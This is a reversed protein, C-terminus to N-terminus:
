YLEKYIKYVRDKDLEVFNNAMLRGQNVMVSETFDALDQETVGYERLPKKQILVNLLKELEDYVNEVGCGIMEAIFANLKAIEGDTKLEMYNKMVGTFMAYNAEGHAVHYMAGLPYSLAHVAACGANGFAIGAYNSAVLFDELLEMRAEEGHDRIQVYGKLIMEIAKYGFMRTYGNGKPSLSSEIAHILADISSTAFFRFPLGNLLEPILVAADAYMEDVALGKKTGRSNLALIAINTVESGTGCTTPVLILEKDKEMPLKGDYLDLIPSVYKLAFLKSIDIVTGGGIAIIRKPTGKIDKYIAEAMDDSPEGSGYKEQFIVDCALNMGGFAPGYIYENTIVLDGEGIVFEEAFQRCTTYKYITPKIMLQQM